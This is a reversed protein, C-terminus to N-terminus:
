PLGSHEILVEDIKSTAGNDFHWCGPNLAPGCEPRWHPYRRMEVTLSQEKTLRYPTSLGDRLSM